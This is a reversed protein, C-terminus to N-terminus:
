PTVMDMTPGDGGNLSLKQTQMRLQSLILLANALGAIDFYFLCMTLDIWTYKIAMCLGTMKKIKNQLLYIYINM